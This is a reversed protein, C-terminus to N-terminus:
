EKIKIKQNKKILIVGDEKETNNVSIVLVSVQSLKKYKIWTPKKYNPSLENGWGEYDDGIQLDEFIIEKLKPSKM